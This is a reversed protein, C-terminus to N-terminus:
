VTSKFIKLSVLKGIGDPLFQLYNYSLDWKQLEQFNQICTNKM